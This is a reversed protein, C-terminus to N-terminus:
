YQRVSAAKYNAMFAEIESFDDSFLINALDEATLFGDEVMKNYFMQVFDYYGGANFFICPNQHEGVRGWSVVESIEELTGPGGPLAIYANALQMMKRKREHMDKTIVLETLKDHAIERDVLFQPMVGYVKGGANLVTNSVIGMLGVKGGGYVLSHGSSALWEGLQVASEAYVANEGVSAGCYVAINM